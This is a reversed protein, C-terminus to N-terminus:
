ALEIVFWGVPTDAAPKGTLTITFSGNTAVASQVTIGPRDQQITALVVSFTAASALSVTVSQTGKTVTAIGSTSFQVPGDVALAAAGTAYVGTANLSSGRVGIGNSSAGVIGNAHTSTGTVGIGNVSTGTVGTGNVSHGAM